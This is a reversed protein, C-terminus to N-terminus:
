HGGEWGEAGRGVVCGGAGVATGEPAHEPVPADVDVVAPGPGALELLMGALALDPFSFQLPVTVQHLLHLSAFRLSPQAYNLVFYRACARLCSGHM